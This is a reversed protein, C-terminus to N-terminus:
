KNGATVSQLCLCQKIRTQKQSLTFQVFYFIVQCVLAHMDKGVQVMRHSQSKSDQFEFEAIIKVVQEQKQIFPSLSAQSEQIVSSLMQSKCYRKCDATGSKKQPFQTLLSTSSHGLLQTADDAQPCFNTNPECCM